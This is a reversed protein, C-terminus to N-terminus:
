NDFANQTVWNRINQQDISDLPERRGEAQVGMESREHQSSLGGQAGVSPTGM